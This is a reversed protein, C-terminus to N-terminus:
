LVNNDIIASIMEPRKFDYLSLCVISFSQQREMEMTGIKSASSGSNISVLV